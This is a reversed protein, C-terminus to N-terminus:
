KKPQEGMCGKYGGKVIRVRQPTQKKQQDKKGKKVGSGHQQMKCVSGGGVASAPDVAFGGVASAPDVAFGAMDWLCMDATVAMASIAM